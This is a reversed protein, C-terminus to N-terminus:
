FQSELTRLLSNSAVHFFPSVSFSWRSLPASTHHQPRLSAPHPHIFKLLTLALPTLWRDELLHCHLHGPIFLWNSTSNYGRGPVAGQPSGSLPKSIMLYFPPLLPSCALSPPLFVRRFGNGKSPPLEEDCGTGAHIPCSVETRSPSGIM